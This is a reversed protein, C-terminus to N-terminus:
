EQAYYLHWCKIIPGGSSPSVMERSGASWWATCIWGHRWGAVACWATTFSLQARDPPTTGTYRHVRELHFTFM